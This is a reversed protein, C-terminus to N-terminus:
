FLGPILRATRAAWAAYDPGFKAALMQEESRIRWVYAVVLVAAVAVAAVWTHFALAAGVWVAISGAYGPHRVWRYPGDTVLLQQDDTRLTRTYAGGLTRMSWARLAVGVVAIAVGLWALDGVDGIGLPALITPLAIALVYGGVLLATSGRDTQERELSSAIGGSRVVVELGLWAVLALAGLVVTAM